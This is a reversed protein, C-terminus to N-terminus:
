AASFKLEGESYLFGVENTSILHSCILLLLFLSGFLKTALCHSDLVGDDDIDREGLREM